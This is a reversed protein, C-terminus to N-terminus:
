IGESSQTPFCHIVCNDDNNIILMQLFWLSAQHRLKVQGVWIESLMYYDTELPVKLKRWIKFHSLIFLIV